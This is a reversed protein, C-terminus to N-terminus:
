SEHDQNDNGYLKLRIGFDYDRYFHTRDSPVFIVFCTPTQSPNMGCSPAFATVPAVPTENQIILPTAEFVQPSSQSVSLPTVAGRWFNAVHYYHHRYTHLRQFRLRQRRIDRIDNTWAWLQVGVHLSADISQVIKDPTANVATAYYGASAANSIAGPQAMGKLGLQGSVWVVGHNPRDTIQVQSHLPFDVVGLGLFNAAPSVSIAASVDVGVVAGGYPAMDKIKDVIISVSGTPPVNNVCPEVSISIAGQMELFQPEIKITVYFEKGKTERKLLVPEGACKVYVKQPSEFNNGYVTIETNKSGVQLWSPSLRTITAQGFVATSAAMALTGAILIRLARGGRGHRCSVLMKFLSYACKSPM